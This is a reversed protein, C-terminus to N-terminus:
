RPIRESAGHSKCLAGLQFLFTNNLKESESINQKTKVDEIKVKVILVQMKINKMCFKLFLEWNNSFLNSLKFFHM